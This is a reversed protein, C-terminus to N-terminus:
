ETEEGVDQGARLLPESLLRNEREMEREKEKERNGLHYSLLISGFANNIFVQTATTDTAYTAAIYILMAFALVGGRYGLRRSAHSIQLHFRLLCWLLFGAMGLEIFQKLYECHANYVLDTATESWISMQAEVWGIGNGFFIPSFSYYPKYMDYIDARASTNIGVQELLDYLGYFIAGVYALAMVLFVVGALRYLFRNLWSFRELKRWFLGVVAALLVGALAIRKLGTFFFFLTLLFLIKKRRIHRTEVAFYVLYCGLAYTIGHIELRAMLEGTEQALTSLLAWLQRFFEVVGGDLMVRVMTAANSVVLSLLHLWSAKEGALYAIAAMMVIGSALYATTIVGKRLELLNASNLIWIMFSWVFPFLLPLLLIWMQEWLVKMRALRPSVLFVALCILVAGAAIPLFMYFDFGAASFMNEGYYNYAVALLFAIVLLVASEHPEEEKKRKTETLINNRVESIM